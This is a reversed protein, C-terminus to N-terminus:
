NNGEMTHSETQSILVIIRFHLVKEHFVKDPMRKKQLKTGSYFLILATSCIFSIIILNVRELVASLLRRNFRALTILLLFEKDM